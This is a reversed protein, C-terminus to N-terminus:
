RLTKMKEIGCAFDMWRQYVRRSHFTTATTLQADLGQASQAELAPRMVGAVMASWM